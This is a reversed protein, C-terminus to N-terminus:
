HQRRAYWASKACSNILLLLLLNLTTQLVVNKSFDTFVILELLLVFNSTFQHLPEWNVTRCVFFQKSNSSYLGMVRSHFISIEGYLICPRIMREQRLQKNVFTVVLKPDDAWFTSWKTSNIHWNVKNFRAYYSVNKKIQNITSGTQKILM